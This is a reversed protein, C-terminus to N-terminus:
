NKNQNEDNKEKRKKMKVSALSVVTVAVAAVVVAVLVTITRQMRPMVASTKFPEAGTASNEAETLTFSLEGHPLADRRFRYVNGEKEFDLSSSELYFPTEIAIEITRFDAWKQAPSLLYTYLYRANGSLDVSPFLPATVCSEVRGGAPIELTYECWRKFNEADVACNCVIFETGKRTHEESNLMDLYGNYWDVEGIGSGEPYKSKVFEAFSRRAVPRVEAKGGGIGVTSIKESSVTQSVVEIEEGAAYFCLTQTGTNLRTCLAAYGNRIGTFPCGNMLLRTRFPNCAITLNLYAYEETEPVSVTVAYETVPLDPDYFDDTRMQESVLRTEGELDKAGGRYTHRVAFTIERGDATVVPSSKKQMQPAYSPNAGYPFLLKASVAYNEPNYFIYRAESTASYNKFDDESGGCKPFEPIRVTLTEHEVVVPCDKETLILGSADSGQWYADAGAKATVADPAAGALLLPLFLFLAGKNIKM